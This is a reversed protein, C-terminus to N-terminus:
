VHQVSTSQFHWDVRLRQTFRCDVRSQPSVNTILTHTCRQDATKRDDDKHQGVISEGSNHGDHGQHQVQQECHRCHHCNIRRESKGTDGTDHQCDPHGHISVNQDVFTHSFFDGLSATNSHRNLVTKFFGEEGNKVRINGGQQCGHNQKRNSRVLDLTECHGEEKTKGDTHVGDQKNTPQHEVDSFLSAPQLLQVHALQDAFSSDVEQLM